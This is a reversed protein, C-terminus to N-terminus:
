WWVLKFLIADEEHEFEIFYHRIIFADAVLNEQLWEFIYTKPVWGTKHQNAFSPIVCHRKELYIVTTM